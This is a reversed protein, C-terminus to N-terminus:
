PTGNISRSLEHWDSGSAILTLKDSVNFLECNTGNLRINGGDDVVTLNQGNSATSIILLDGSTGGNITNLTDSAAGEGVIYTNTETVTVAGSVITVTDGGGYNMFGGSVILDGGSLTVDGVVELATAPTATGIGVDGANTIRMKEVSGIEFVHPLSSVANYTNQDVEASLELANSGTYELRMTATATTRQIELGSGTAFSPTSTGIGVNGSSDIRASESGNNEFSTYGSTTNNIVFAGTSNTYLLKIRQTGSQDFSIGREGAITSNLSLLQNPSSTGIGVNGSGDIRMRETGSAGFLFNDTLHNYQVYGRYAANGATGDAFALTGLGTTGSVLTLGASTGGSVALDGFTYSSPSTVGIGVNGSGDIRMRETQNTSFTLSRTNLANFGWTLNGDTEIQLGGVISGSGFQAVTASSTSTINVDLATAPSTTGIGVNGDQGVTLVTGAGDDTFTLHGSTSDREIDWYATSTAALRIGAGSV